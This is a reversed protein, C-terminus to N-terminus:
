PMEGKESLVGNAPPLNDKVYIVPVIREPAPVPRRDALQRLYGLALEIEDEPRQDIVIDILDAELAHRSHAVLEHLIVTPRPMDPPLDELVRILGANGAGASYIATIAPDAALAARLKEEVLAHRDRGEILPALSLDPSAAAITQTMGQLREAHDRASLSGIVPLIRGPRGRHALALLRGATRGVVINDVGVYGNRQEGIVDSILTLVAIGQQRLAEIEANVRSDDIGVLAVGDLSEAALRRLRAALAEADFAAVGEIQVEIQEPILRVRSEGLVTRVRAFFSNSGEPIIFAFRYTRGQSLNAAAVNRVYGLQEIASRVRRVSKDAVGGRDNVVRDATAYSVGASRAVDSLTPARGGM